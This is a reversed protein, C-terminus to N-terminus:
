IQLFHFTANLYGTESAAVDGPDMAEVLDARSLTLLGAQNAETLHQKFEGETMGPSVAQLQRWAHNIFVKREGFRGSPAARAAELAHRAFAALDFPAAVPPTPPAPTESPPAADLWQRLVALRLEDTATSRAGAAQASLRAQLQKANPKGELGLCRILVADRTFKQTSDIGLQKWALAELTQALTPLEATALVHHRKLVVARLNDTNSVRKRTDADTPLGLAKAVLFADKLSKWNTRSPLTELGLFALTTARGADTLDLPRATAQGDAVLHDLAQDFLSNWEAASHRQQFFPDLAKKVEARTPRKKAPVLLRVLLLRRVAAAEVEPSPGSQLQSM